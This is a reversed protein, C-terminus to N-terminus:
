LAERRHGINWGFDANLRRLKVAPEAAGRKTVLEHPKIGIGRRAERRAVAGPERAGILYNAGGANRDSVPPLLGSRRRGIAERRQQQRRRTRRKVGAAVSAERRHDLGAPQVLYSRQHCATEIRVQRRHLRNTDRFQQSMQATLDTEVLSYGGAPLRRPAIGLTLRRPEAM